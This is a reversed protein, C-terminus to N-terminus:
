YNHTCIKVYAHNLDLASVCVFSVGSIKPCKNAVDINCLLQFSQIIGSM